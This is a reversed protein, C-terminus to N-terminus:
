HWRQMTGSTPKAAFKLDFRQCWENVDGSAFPKPLSIHHGTAMEKKQYLKWGDEAVLTITIIFLVTHYFLEIQQM